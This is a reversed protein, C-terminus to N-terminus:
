RLTTILRDRRLVISVHVHVIVILRAARGVRATAHMPALPQHLRVIGSRKESLLLNCVCRGYIRRPPWLHNGEDVDISAAVLQVHVGPIM